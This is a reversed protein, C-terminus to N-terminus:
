TESWSCPFYIRWLLHTWILLLWTPAMAFCPFFYNRSPAMQALVGFGAGSKLVHSGTRGEENILSLASNCPSIVQWLTKWKRGRLFSVSPLSFLERLVFARARLVLIQQRCFRLAWLAAKNNKNLTGGTLWSCDATEMWTLGGSHLQVPSSKCKGKQKLHNQDKIPNSYNLRGWGVNSRSEAPSSLM